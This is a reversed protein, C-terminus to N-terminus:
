KPDKNKILMSSDIKLDIGWIKKVEKTMVKMLDNFKKENEALLQFVSIANSAIFCSPCLCWEAIKFNNEYRIVRTLNNSPRGCKCQM